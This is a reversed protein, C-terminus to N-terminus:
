FWKASFTRTSNAREGEAVLPHIADLGAAAAVDPEGDVGPPGSSGGRARGNGRPVGRRGAELSTDYPETGWGSKM